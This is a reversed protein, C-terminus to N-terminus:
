RNNDNINSKKKFETIELVEFLSKSLKLIKVIMSYKNQENNRKEIILLLVKLLNITKILMAKTAKARNSRDFFELVNSEVGVPITQIRM